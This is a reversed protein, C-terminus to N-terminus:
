GVKIKRLVRSYIGAFKGCETWTKDWRSRLAINVRLPFGGKDKYMKVIGASLGEKRQGTSIVPDSSIVLWTKCLM